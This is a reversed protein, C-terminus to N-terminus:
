PVVKLTKIYEGGQYVHTACSVCPDFSRVIVGLEVPNKIDRVPTGIMAQEATGKLNKTQTSLNWVSPTIIQYFSIVRNQIKLWHGLAGRTTDILGQGEATDPVQYVSQVTTDPKLYDLLIGLVQAIKKTEMVRAITRDMASIGNRYEGSVWQRALPGVEFALGRYRAAKVWSYGSSKSIDPQPVTEDPVYTNVRDKYWSYDINETINSPDFANLKGNMFTLPDVYLTGLERYGNFCGYSLFYGYGGGMKYYDDYYRAITSVDPIMRTIIFDQIGALLSRMKIIKDATAQPIAGGIFVGHNHPAKGAFVAVMEHADRSKQLSEFYNNVIIDNEAKPIRFDMKSDEFLAFKEPMRVYDPVTMQYFHRIHNQLFECGHIIDRLYRGQESVIVGLAQELAMSSAISHATSCIGCIRQTLHIADFPYRGQLIQEFGRFLLGDARANTVVNDEIEVDLELFGSIRTLPNIVVRDTM